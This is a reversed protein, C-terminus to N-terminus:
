QPRTTLKLQTNCSDADREEKCTMSCRITSHEKCCRGRLEGHNLMDTQYIERSKCMAGLLISSVADFKLVDPQM